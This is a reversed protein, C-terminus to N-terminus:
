PDESKYLIFGNIVNELLVFVAPFPMLVVANRHSTRNTNKEDKSYLRFDINQSWMIHLITFPCSYNKKRKLINLNIHCPYFPSFQVNYLLHNCRRQMGQRTEYNKQKWKFSRLLYLILRYKLLIFHVLIKIFIICWFKTEPDKTIKKWVHVCYLDEFMMFIKRYLINNKCRHRSTIVIRHTTIKWFPQFCKRDIM